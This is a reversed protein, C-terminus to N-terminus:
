VVAQFILHGPGSASHRFVIFSFSCLLNFFATLSLSYLLSNGSSRDELVFIFNLRVAGGFSSLTRVSWLGHLLAINLVLVPLM